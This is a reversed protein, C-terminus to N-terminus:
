RTAISQGKAERKGGADRVAFSVPRDGVTGSVWGNAVILRFPNGRDASGTLIQSDGKTEVTYHYTVGDRVITIPEAAITPTAVFAALLTLKAFITKM